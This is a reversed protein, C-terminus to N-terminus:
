GDDKEGDSAFLSERNRSFYELSKRVAGVVARPTITAGTFQDFVGGDRRVRWGDAGPDLLSRGAFAEVWGSRRVDIKDGLGPTEQHSVVRVGTVEGAHSIGVTLRITGNYGDPAVPAIVVAVPRGKLRARYCPVPAGTGLSERDTVQIVDRDLDNDYEVSQLVAHLGALLVARENAAIQERSAEYTLAVVGTGAVAFILLLAAGRLMGSFTPSAM